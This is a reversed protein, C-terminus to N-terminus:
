RALREAVRWVVSEDVTAGVADPVQTAALVCLGHVASWCTLAQEPDGIEDVLAAFWRGTTERLRGGAGDLVDHRFILEFMGPRENAFRWYAVAAAGVGVAITPRLVADLDAVGEAAIAALLADRTAFYRRPAGHSVGVRSAVSRVGVEGFGQEDVIAVGAAVLRDRTGEAM